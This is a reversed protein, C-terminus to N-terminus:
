PKRIRLTGINVSQGPKLTLEPGVTVPPIERRYFSAVFEVRGSPGEVVFRGDPDSSAGHVDVDSARTGSPQLSLWAAVGRGAEDVLKGVVETRPGIPIALGTLAQGPALEVEVGGIQGGAAASVRFRGPPLGRVVFAGGTRYYEETREFSTDLEHVRVRMREPLVGGGALRGAISGPRRMTLTLRDGAVVNAAMAEGGDIRFARVVHEGPGVGEFRFDGNTDTVVRHDRGGQQLLQTAFASGKAVAVFADGVPVGAEDVVRGRIVGDPADVAEVTVTMHAVRGPQADVVPASRITRGEVEVVRYRGAALDSLEFSGDPAIPGGWRTGPEMVVVVHGRTVPQGRDDVVTGRLTAARPVRVEVSASGGEPIAVSHPHETENPGWGVRVHYTGGRLGRIVFTGDERTVTTGEDMRPAVAIVPVGPAPSGDDHLVTGRLLSAPRVTWVQEAPGDADIRIAPFQDSPLHDSCAVSAHYTGPPVADFAVNGNADIVSHHAILREQHRERGSLSVTGQRCPEATGAVLVRGTVRAAPHVEIVVDAVTQAFGLLINGATEGYRAPGTAFAHYRGPRLGAVRFQGAADTVTRAGSWGDHDSEIGVVLVRAGAAGDRAGDIVRGALVSEPTLEIEVLAGSGSAHVFTECYGEAHVHITLPGPASWIRFGGRDDTQGRSVSLGSMATVRVWAGAVPGGGLDNVVGAVVVGGPQLRLDVGTRAEGPRLRVAGTAWFDVSHGEPLHRAPVFGPAGAAVDYVAPLLGVLRYRGDPTAKTCIPDRVAEDPLEPSAAVGCVDAFAVPAGVVDVVRGEISGLPAGALYPWIPGTGEGLAGPQSRQRAGPAEGTERRSCQSIALAALPGGVLVLVAGVLM